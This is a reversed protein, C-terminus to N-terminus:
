QYALIFLHRKVQRKFSNLNDHSQPLSRMELPLSNWVTAAASSFGSLGCATHIKPVRLLMAQSSRLSRSPQYRTVLEQIYDPAM